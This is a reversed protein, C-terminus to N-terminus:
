TATIASPIQPPLAQPSPPLNVVLMKAVLPHIRMTQRPNVSCLHGVSVSSLAQMDDNATYPFSNEM